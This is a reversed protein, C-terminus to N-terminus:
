AAAKGNVAVAAGLAQAAELLEPVYELPVTLGKSTPILDAGPTDRPEVWLRVSAYRKGKFTELTARVTGRHGLEFEHLVEPQQNGSTV